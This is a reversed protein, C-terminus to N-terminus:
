RINLVSTEARGMVDFAVSGVMFRTIRSKGSDSVVIVSYPNGAELIESTPEGVAVRVDDVTIGDTELGAKLKEMRRELVAAAGDDSAVSLISVPEGAFHALVAGRRM